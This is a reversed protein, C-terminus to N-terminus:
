WTSPADSVDCQFIIESAGRGLQDRPCRSEAYWGQKPRYCTMLSLDEDISSFLWRELSNDLLLDTGQKIYDIVLVRGTKLSEPTNYGRYWKLGPSRPRRKWGQSGKSMPFQMASYPVTAVKPHIDDEVQIEAEITDAQVGSETQSLETGYLILWTELAGFSGRVEGVSSMQVVRGASSM